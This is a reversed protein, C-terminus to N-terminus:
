DARSPGCTASPGGRRVDGCMNAWSGGPAEPDLPFGSCGPGPNWSGDADHCPTLDIGATAEMWPVFPHILTYITQGNCFLSGRSTAGFTRWSGDALRVYAPGGSDGSCGGARSWGLYVDSGVVQNITVDVLYKVGASFSLGGRRGYGALTAAQGPQLIGTECGFLVPVVPVDEVAEALLCFAFDGELGSEEGGHCREVTVTRTVGAGSWREGFTVERPGEDTVCHGATTVVRPHVLTGTCSRDLGVATPWQCVGARTGGVIPQQVQDFAPAEDAPAVPECAGGLGVIVILLPTSLTVPPLPSRSLSL